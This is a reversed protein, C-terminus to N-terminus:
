AAVERQYKIVYDDSKTGVYFKNSAEKAKEAVAPPPGYKKLQAQQEAEYTGLAGLQAVRFWDVNGDLEKPYLHCANNVFAKLEDDKIQIGAVLREMVYQPIQGSRQVDLIKPFEVQDYHKYLIGKNFMPGNNHALTYATDAFMEATIEGRIFKALTDAIDGWPDGGFGGSWVGHYHFAFSLGEAYERLTIKPPDHKLLEMAGDEGQSMAGLLLKIFEGSLKTKSAELFNVISHMHRAERIIILMTYYVLRAISTASMKAYQKALMAAAPPLIDNQDYQASILSFVHNSYYFKIAEDDPLVKGPSSSGMYSNLAETAQPLMISSMDRKIFLSSLKVGALTDSRVHYV